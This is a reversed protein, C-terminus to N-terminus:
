QAVVCRVRVQINNRKHDNNRGGWEVPQHLAGKDNLVGLVSALGRGIVREGALCRCCRIDILLLWYATGAINIICAALRALM